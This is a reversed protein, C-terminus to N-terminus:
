AMLFFSRAAREIVNGTFPFGGAGTEGGSAGRTHSRFGGEWLQRWDPRRKRRIEWDLM